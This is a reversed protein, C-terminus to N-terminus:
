LGFEAIARQVCEDIYRQESVGEMAEPVHLQAYAYASRMCPLCLAEGNGTIGCVEDNGCESCEPIMNTIATAM